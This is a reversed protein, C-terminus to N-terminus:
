QGRKTQPDNAIPCGAAQDDSVKGIEDLRTQLSLKDLSTLPLSSFALMRNHLARYASAFALSVEAENGSAAAPDPISWSATMPQGPWIPCVEGAAQDCVTFVFDMIPADPRAFEDWSKSRAAGLDLQARELLALAMPHIEGKPSSGASYARFPKGINNLIAEAM